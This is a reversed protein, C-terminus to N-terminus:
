AVGLSGKVEDHPILRGADRDARAEAVAVREEDTEPEDDYPAEDLLRGLPDDRSVLAALAREAAPLEADPLEDLLQRLHERPTM